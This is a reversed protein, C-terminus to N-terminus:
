LVGMDATELDISVAAADPDLPLEPIADAPQYFDRTGDVAKAITRDRYDKRDWKRRYLGSRRFLRDLQGADHTYFALLGCLALDAASDDDDHMGTDGSWLRVFKERNRACAAIDLVADDTLDTRGSLTTPRENVAPHGFTNAHLIALEATRDEIPASVMTQGTVVFYRDESYMEVKGKRRRGPPLAGLCIVHVGTGSVSTETYSDLLEIIDTAWPEIVGTEPNRCKDVDVGVFGNGLVFGFMPFRGSEVLRWATDFDSWTSPDTSDARRTPNGPAYPVKDIAVVWRHADRLEAPINEAMPM